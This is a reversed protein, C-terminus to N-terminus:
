LELIGAQELEEFYGAMEDWSRSYDVTQGYYPLEVSHKIILDGRKFVQGTATVFEIDGPSEETVDQAIATFPETQIGRRSRNLSIILRASVNEAEEIQQRDEDREVLNMLVFRGIRQIINGGQRAEERNRGTELYQGLELSIKTVGQDFLLQVAEDDAIQVLSFNEAWEPLNANQERSLRFLSKIYREMSQQTIGSPMVLCHNGSVMMMGDGGLYDWDAGPPETSLDADPPGAVANPVTSAMQGPDWKAVHVFIRGNQIYRHRIAARGLRFDLETDASSPLQRLCEALADSLTLGQWEPFAWQARRYYITRQPM